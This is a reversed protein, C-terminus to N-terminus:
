DGAIKFHRKNRAWLENTADNVNARLVHVRGGISGTVGGM